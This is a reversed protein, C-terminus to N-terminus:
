KGDGRPLPPLPPLSLMAGGLAAVPAATAPPAMALRVRRKGSTEALVSRAQVAIITMGNDLRDGAQVEVTAGNDLELTAYLASGVGEIAVILPQAAPAQRRSRAQEQVRSAIEQERAAIAAKVGLQKERAKLVLTDAEIRSLTDSLKLTASEAGAAPTQASSAGCVACWLLPVVFKNLM